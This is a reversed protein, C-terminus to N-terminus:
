GEIGAMERQKEEEEEKEHIVEICAARM